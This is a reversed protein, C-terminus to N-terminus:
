VGPHLLNCLTLAYKVISTASVQGRNEVGLLLIDALSCTGPSNLDGGHGPQLASDRAVPHPWQPVAVPFENVKLGAHAWHQPLKECTHGIDGPNDHDRISEEPNLGVSEPRFVAL